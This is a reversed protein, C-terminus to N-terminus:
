KKSSKGFGKKKPKQSLTKGAMSKDDKDFDGDGDLDGTVVPEDPIEVFRWDPHKLLGAVFRDPDFVEGIQLCVKIELHTPGILKVKKTM